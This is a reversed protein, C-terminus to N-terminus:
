ESRARVGLRAPYPETMAGTPALSNQATPIEAQYTEDSRPTASKGHVGLQSDHDQQGHKRRAFVHTVSAIKLPADNKWLVAQIEKRIWM